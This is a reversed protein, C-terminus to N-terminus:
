KQSNSVKERITSFDTGFRDTVEQEFAKRVEALIIEQTFSHKTTMVLSVNSSFIGRSLNGRGLEGTLILSSDVILRIPRGPSVIWTAPSHNEYVLMGEVPCIGLSIIVVKIGQNRAQILYPAFFKLDTSAGDIYITAKAHQLLYVIKDLILEEGELSIVLDQVEKQTPLNEIVLDAAQEISHLVKDKLEEPPIALYRAPDKTVKYVIGKDLLSSLAAYINSRAIGTANSIEYGTQQGKQAISIYVQAEHGTLGLSKLAEGLIPM